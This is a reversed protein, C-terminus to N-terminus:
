NGVVQKKNAPGTWPLHQGTSLHVTVISSNCNRFLSDLDESSESM